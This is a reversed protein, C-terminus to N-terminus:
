RRTMCAVGLADVTQKLDSVDTQLREFQHAVGARDAAEQRALRVVEADIYCVMVITFLMLTTHIIRVESELTRVIKWEYWLRPGM